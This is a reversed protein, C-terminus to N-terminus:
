EDIHKSCSRLTPLTIQGNINALIILTNRWKLYSFTIITQPSFQMFGMNYIFSISELHVYVGKHM